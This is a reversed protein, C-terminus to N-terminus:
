DDIELTDLAAQAAALTAQFAAEDPGAVVVYLKGEATPIEWM